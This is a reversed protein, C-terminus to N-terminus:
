TAQLLQGAVYVTSSASALQHELQFSSDEAVFGRWKLTFLAQNGFPSSTAFNHRTVEMLVSAVAGQRWIEGRYFQLGDAGVFSRGKIVVAGVGLSQGNMTFKLEYIGPKMREGQRREIERMERTVTELEKALRRVLVRAKEDGSTLLSFQRHYEDSLATWRSFIEDMRDM